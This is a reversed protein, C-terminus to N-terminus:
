QLAAEAQALQIRLRDCERNRAVLQRRCEQALDEARQTRARLDIVQHVASDAAVLRRIRDGLRPELLEALQLLLADVDAYVEASM